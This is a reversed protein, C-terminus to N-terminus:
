AKKIPYRLITKMKEVETKRPDSLYIEHHLGNISLENDDLYKYMENLTEIETSYPGIHMMQICLGEEIEVFKVNKIKELDKKNFTSEKASEFSELSVYEPMMILLKWLWKDRSVKLGDDGDEVWWLGELKSVVFDKELAKYIGKVGYALPYLASVAESFEDGNPDGMGSITLYKSKKFEKIEPKKKSAFYEKFEKKLDLKM